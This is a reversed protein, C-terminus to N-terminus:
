EWMINISGADFTDTGGVTTVRIRNLAGSLTKVGGSINVQATGSPLGLVGSECWINSGLQCLVVQGCWDNAIANSYTVVFGAAAASAARGSGESVNYKYNITELSSSTGLQVLLPSTGNTSVSNFLVTVRNAWSPIVGTFDISTGSTSAQATGPIIKAAVLNAPTLARTTDTGAQAEANTALEVAGVYTATAAQKLADFAALATSAGTGGDAIALDTTLGSVTGGTITAGTITTTGSITANTVSGGYVVNNLLQFRTGDYQVHVMGGAQIDGAVLAISGAKTISKVTLGDISITVAGTNANAAVFSYTAGTSYSTITPTATAAITNTGTVNSLLSNISGPDNIPLINDYTGILTETSTKVIFKFQQGVPLWIEAPVRGAADLVIPNTHSAAGTNSTYTAAPTTTGAAYTYLKGGSLVNGNDDFFQWGAGAFSSLNYAAM